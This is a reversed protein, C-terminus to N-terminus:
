QPFTDGKEGVMWVGKQWDSRETYMVGLNCWVQKRKVKCWVQKRQVKGRGNETGDLRLSPYFSLCISLYVSLWLYILQVKSSDRLPLFFFHPNFYQMNSSKNVATNLVRGLTILLLKVLESMWKGARMQVFWAMKQHKRATLFSIGTDSSLSDGRYGYPSDEREKHDQIQTSCQVRFFHQMARQPKM